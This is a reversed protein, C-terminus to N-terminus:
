HVPLVAPPRPDEVCIQAYLAVSMTLVVATMSGNAVQPLACRRVALGRKGKAMLRCLIAGIVPLRLVYAM